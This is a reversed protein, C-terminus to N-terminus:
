RRVTWGDPDGGFKWSSGSMRPLDDPGSRYDPMHGDELGLMFVTPWQLGKTKHLSAVRVGGGQTPARGGSGLALDALLDDVTFEADHQEFDTVSEVIPTLREGLDM